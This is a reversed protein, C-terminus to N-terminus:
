RPRRRGVACGIDLGLNKWQTWVEMRLQSFRRGDQPNGLPTRPKMGDMPPVPTPSGGIAFYTDGIPSTVEEEDGEEQRNGNGSEPTPINTPNFSSPDLNQHCRKMKNVNAAIEQNRAIRILYNLDSLRRVVEYPGRWKLRFKPCGRKQNTIVRLYIMEGPQFITIRTGKDYQKKQRERGIRNNEKAM